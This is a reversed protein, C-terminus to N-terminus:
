KQLSSLQHYARNEPYFAIASQISEKASRYDDKSLYYQSLYYHTPAYHPDLELVLNFYHLANKDNGSRFEAYGMDALIMPNYIGTVTIGNRFYRIAQTFDGKEMLAKGLGYHATLNKDNLSTWYRCYTEQTQWKTNNERLLLGWAGVVVVVLILFLNFNTKEKLSLFCKALIIFFGISSFYFWHPEIIPTVSPYYTFSAVGVPIFGLMFISLAFAKIGKKWSVFILYMIAAVVGVVAVLKGMVFHTSIGQNWLFIINFPAILKGIYWGILDVVTAVYVTFKPLILSMAKVSGALSYFKLRFLFYAFSMGFYPSSFWLSRKAGFDYILFLACFIFVPFIMSMEHSALALLFLFLSLCYLWRRPKIMYYIFCILSCQLMFVFTTIVSATIYNVLMSNIPHVLYLLATLFALPRDNTLKQTIHFFLLGIVYFFLFNAFHYGFPDSGFLQYSLWLFIHGIPRYFDGQYNTFLDAFSKHAVGGPGFLVLHDDLLFENHFSNAYFILCVLFLFPFIIRPTNLRKFTPAMKSQLFMFGWSTDFFGLCVGPTQKTLVKTPNV